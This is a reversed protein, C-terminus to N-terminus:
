MISDKTEKWRDSTETVNTPSLFKVFAIIYM